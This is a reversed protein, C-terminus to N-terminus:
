CPDHEVDQDLAAAIGFRDLAQQALQELLLAVRKPQYERVFEGAIAHGFSFDHGADLMALM